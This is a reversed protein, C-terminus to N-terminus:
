TELKPSIITCYPSWYGLYDRHSLSQWGWWHVKETNAGKKPLNGMMIPNTCCCLSCTLPEHLPSELARQPYNSMAGM